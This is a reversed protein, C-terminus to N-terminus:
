KSQAMRWSAFQLRKGSPDKSIWGDVWRKSSCTICHPVLHLFLFPGCFRRDSVDSMLGLLLNMLPLDQSIQIQFGMQNTTQFMVPNHSEMIYPFLLGLQRVGDNKLPTPWGGVLWTWSICHISFLVSKRCRPAIRKKGPPNDIAPSIPSEVAQNHEM